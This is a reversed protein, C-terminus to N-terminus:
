QLFSICILFIVKEPLLFINLRQITDPRHFLKKLTVLAILNYDRRFILVIIVWGAKSKAEGSSSTILTTLASELAVGGPWTPIHRVRRFARGIRTSRKIVNIKLAMNLVCSKGAWAQRALRFKVRLWIPRDTKQRGQRLNPSLSITARKSLSTSWIAMRGKM